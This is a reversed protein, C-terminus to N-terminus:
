YDGLLLAGTKAADTLFNKCFAILDNVDTATIVTRPVVFSLALSGTYAKGAADYRTQTFQVYHRDVGSSSSVPSITHKVVAFRPASLATAADVYNVGDKLQTTPNFTVSAAAANNVSFSKGAM